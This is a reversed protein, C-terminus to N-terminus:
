APNAREHWGESAYLARLARERGDDRRSRHGREGLYRLRELTPLTPLNLEMERVKGACRAVACRRSAAVLHRQHHQSEEPPRGRGRKGPKREGPLLVRLIRWEVETLDGRSL